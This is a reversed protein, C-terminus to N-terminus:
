PGAGVKQEVVKELSHVRMQEKRLVAQLALADTQAKSRVQAIEESARSCCLIRSLRPRPWGGGRGAGAGGLGVCQQLKEEAQAKLAQYKQAEKEVRGIYDEVCKKLSEENQSSSPRQAGLPPGARQPTRPAATTSAM